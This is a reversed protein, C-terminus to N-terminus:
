RPTLSVNDLLVTAGDVVVQLSTLRALPPKVTALDASWATWAGPPASGVVDLSASRPRGQTDEYQLLVRVRAAGELVKYELALGLGTDPRVRVAQTAAAAATEASLRLVRGRGAEADMVGRGTVTWPELAAEFSGNRLPQAVEASASLGTTPPPTRAAPPRPTAAAPPRTSRVPTPTIASRKRAIEREAAERAAQERAAEAEEAARRRAQKSDRHEATAAQYATADRAFGLSVQVRGTPEGFYKEEPDLALARRYHDAARELAQRHEDSYPPHRYALAEHAVGINHLRAAEKDGKFTRRSWEALAEEFMGAEALRNGNKLEGDVALLADVPDPSFTVAGAAQDGAEEVLFRELAEESYAEPPATANGKFQQDYRASADATRAGGPTQAEVRAGLSGSVARVTVPEKRNGYVDKTVYKNKKADWEQREGIKVYKDEYVVSERIRAELDDLIVRVVNDPRESVGVLRLERNTSLAQEVRDQVLRLQRDTVRRSQTTVEVTVTDGLLHIQPPRTRPLTVRTKSIGFKAFAAPAVALVFVASAVAAKRM